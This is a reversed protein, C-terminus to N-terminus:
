LAFGIGIKECPFPGDRRRVPAKPMLLTVMLPLFLLIALSFMLMFKELPQPMMRYWANINKRRTNGAIYAASNIFCTM